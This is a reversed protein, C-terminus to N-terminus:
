GGHSCKWDYPVDKSKYSVRHEDPEAYNYLQTVTNVIKCSEEGIATFGHYVMEPIVVLRPQTVSAVIEMVEGKTPSNERADYLVIKAVGDVCVFFDTQHKHFHWAKAVGPKCSTMYVQGFDKYEAWDKRLMEMLWGRDDVVKKLEKVVVGQIM